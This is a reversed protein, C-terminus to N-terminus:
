ALGPEDPPMPDDPWGTGGCEPCDRDVDHDDTVEGTGGCYRCCLAPYDAPDEGFYDDPEPVM